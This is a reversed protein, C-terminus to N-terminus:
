LVENFGTSATLDIVYESTGGRFIIRDVTGSAANPGKTFDMGGDSDFGFTLPTGSIEYETTSGEILYVVEMSRDALKERDLSITPTVVQVGGAVSTVESYVLEGYYADETADYSIMVYPNPEGGLTAVRCSSILSNFNNAAGRADTSFLLSVGIGVSTALLTILTITIVLEVVSFGKNQKANVM